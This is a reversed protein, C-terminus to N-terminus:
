AQDEKRNYLEIAAHVAGLQVLITENLSGKGKEMNMRGMPLWGQELRWAEYEEITSVRLKAACRILNDRILVANEMGGLAKNGIAEFWQGVRDDFFIKDFNM